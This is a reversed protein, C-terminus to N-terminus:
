LSPLPKYVNPNILSVMVMLMSWFVHVYGLLCTILKEDMANDCAGILNMIMCMCSQQISAQLLTIMFIITCHALTHLRDLDSQM